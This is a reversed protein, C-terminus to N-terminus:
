QRECGLCNSGYSETKFSSQRAFFPFCLNFKSIYPGGGGALLQKNEEYERERAEERRKRERKVRGGEIEGEAEGTTGEGM